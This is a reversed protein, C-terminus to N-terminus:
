ARTAFRLVKRSWHMTDGLSWVILLGHNRRYEKEKGVVAKPMCCIATAAAIAEEDDSDM